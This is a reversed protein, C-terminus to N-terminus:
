FQTNQNVIIFNKTNPLIKILIKICNQENSMFITIQFSNYFRLIISFHVTRCSVQSLRQSFIRCFLSMYMHPDEAQPFVENILSM